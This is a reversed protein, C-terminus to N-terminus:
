PKSGYKPITEAALSADTYSQAPVTDKIATAKSNTTQAAKVNEKQVTTNSSIVTSSDLEMLNDTWVECQSMVTEVADEVGAPPYDYKKLLRKILMRMHARAGAKRSWDITKNKRLTETLAKTMAILEDNKYFDKIAEPKTLADYFASEEASLGLQKGEQEAETIQRALKLMEAIVEENTLMGNLYTNVTQQLMKSFKESKVVNYRQYIHVQEALLRKLLEVALNREKMNAIEELFGPSFLSFAKSIDSFLNVVGSSKISQMLLANIQANLEPLSLRKGGGTYSLRVLLVRVAEFFAAEFRQPEAAVSSCLSLAQRLLFAEKLFADKQKEKERAMLFNVAGSIAKARELDTGTMFMSYDYGHLLDQCISLKELFTPYAVSLIDTDGYQKKDRSTYDNMAQKLARMIGIYDVILGGEKDQFVRNVRAIAQMLNYGAMPKYIYMTALSPVDFGTLWMDVVIAIKLPSTNDKFKAALEDRRHKNGIITRWSEDDDNTSTMVVAVTETWIPRLELM